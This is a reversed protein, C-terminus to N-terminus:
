KKITNWIKEKEIIEKELEIYQNRLERLKDWKSELELNPYLIALREEIKELTQSINKGGVTLEGQIKTDGCVTLNPTPKYGWNNDSTGNSKIVISPSLTNPYMSNSPSGYTNTVSGYTMNPSTKNTVSGHTMIPAAQSYMIDDDDINHKYKPM